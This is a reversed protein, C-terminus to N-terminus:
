WGFVVVVVAVAVHHRRGCPSRRHSPLLVTLKGPRQCSVLVVLCDFWIGTRRITGARDMPAGAGGAGGGGSVLILESLGIGNGNVGDIEILAGIEVNRAWRLLSVFGCDVGTGSHVLGFGNCGGSM